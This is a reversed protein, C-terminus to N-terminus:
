FLNCVSRSLLCCIKHEVTQIGISFGLRTSNNPFLPNAKETSGLAAARTKSDETRDKIMKDLSTPLLGRGSSNRLFKLTCSLLILHNWCQLTKTFSTNHTKPPHFIGFLCTCKSFITPCPSNPPVQSSSKVTFSTKIDKVFSNYCMAANWVRPSLWTNQNLSKGHHWSNKLLNFFPSHKADM